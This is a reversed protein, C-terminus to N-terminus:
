RSLNYGRKDAKFREIENRMAARIVDSLNVKGFATLGTLEAAMEKVDSYLEKPILFTYHQGIMLDGGKLNKYEIAVIFM